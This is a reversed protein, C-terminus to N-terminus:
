NPYIYTVSGNGTTTPNFAPRHSGLSMNGAYNSEIVEINSGQVSTVYAVHGYGGDDPGGSWSAIAGVQPTYGTRFGAAAASSAWQGGNGWNNGAWPAAIKAGWTCQGVPYTNVGGGGNPKPTPTPTPNPTPAPNPTPTVPVIAAPTNSGGSAQSAAQATSVTVQDTYAKEAAAAQTAAAQATAKQELLSSKEGEATAREASLNLQSVKLEAQRTNLTKAQTDMQDKLKYGEDVKAQNSKVTKVLDAKAAEQQKLMDDNAKVITRMASIRTVADSLSKSSVVADVYSTAAGDTQASRAQAKLSEDRQAIEKTLEQAKADLKKSENLLGETDSKLKTQKATLTDVQAQISTVESQATTEASKASAIKADQSAIKTDTDDAAVVITTSVASLIVTSLLITSILSKKM